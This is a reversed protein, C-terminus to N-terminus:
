NYIKDFSRNYREIKWIYRRIISTMMNTPDIYECGIFRTQNKDEKEPIDIRHVVLDSEVTGINPLNIRCAKLITSTNVSLSNNKDILSIGGESIDAVDMSLHGASEGLECKLKHDLPPIARFYERRQLKLVYDPFGLKIAVGDGYVVKGLVTVPFLYKIGKLQSTITVTKSDLVHRCKEADRINDIYLCANNDDLGLLKNILFQNTNELFVTILESSEIIQKINYAIEDKSSVLYRKNPEGRTQGSQTYFQTLHKDANKFSNKDM